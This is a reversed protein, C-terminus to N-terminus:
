GPLQRFIFKDRHTIGHWPVQHYLEMCELGQCQMCTLPWSYARAMKSGTGLPHTPPTPASGTQDCHYHLSFIKERSPISGHNDMGWGFVKNVSINWSIIHSPPSFFGSSFEILCGTGKSLSLHTVQSYLGPANGSSSVQENHQIHRLHCAIGILPCPKEWDRWM